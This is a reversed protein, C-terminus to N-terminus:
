NQEMMFGNINVQEFGAFFFSYLKSPHNEFVKKIMKILITIVLQILLQNARKQPPDM